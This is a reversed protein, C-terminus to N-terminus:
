IREASFWGSASPGLPEDLHVAFVARVATAVVNLLATVGRAQAEAAPGVAWFYTAQQKVIRIRHSEETFGFTLHAFQEYDIRFERPEQRMHPGPVSHCHVGRNSLGILSGADLDGLRVLWLPREATRLSLVPLWRDVPGPERLVRRLEEVAAARALEVRDGTWDGRLGAARPSGGLLHGIYPRVWRRGPDDLLMRVIRGAMPSGDGADLEDILAAVERPSRYQIVLDLYRDVLDPRRGGSAAPEPAIHWLRAVWKVTDPGRALEGLIADVVPVAAVACARTLVAAIVGPPEGALEAAFAGPAALGTLRASHVASAVVLDILVRTGAQSPWAFGPPVATAIARSLVRRDARVLEAMVEVVGSPTLGALRPVFRRMPEPDLRALVPGTTGPGEAVVADALADAADHDTTELHGILAAVHGPDCRAAARALADDIPVAGLLGIFEIAHQCHGAARGILRGAREDAGVDRLAAGLAAAVPIRAVARDLVGDLQSESRQGAASHHEARGDDPQRESRRDAASHHEARGGDAQREPRQGAAAQDHEAQGGDAESLAAVLAIMEPRRDLRVEVAADLLADREPPELLGSVAVVEPAGLGAAFAAFAARGPDPLATLIAAIEAAPRQCAAALVRGADAPDLVEVVGAVEGATRSAGIADLLMEAPRHGGAARMETIRRVVASPALWPLRGAPSGDVMM